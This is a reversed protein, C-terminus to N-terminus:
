VIYDDINKKLISCQRKYQNAKKEIAVETILFFFQLNCDKKADYEEYEVHEYYYMDNQDYKNIEQEEFVSCLETFHIAQNGCIQLLKRYKM